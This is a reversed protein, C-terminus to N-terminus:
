DRIVRDFEISLWDALPEITRLFEERNEPPRQIWGLILSMSTRKEPYYRCFYEVSPELDTTWCGLRPMVLSFGTRVTKRCIRRMLSQAIETQNAEALEQLGAQTVSPYDGNFGRAVEISPRFRPLLPRIDQGALCVCLHKIFCGWGPLGEEALAERLSVAGLGVERVLSHCSTSLTNAVHRIEAQDRDSVSDRFIVLLDIDSHGLRARGTAVSGCLYLGHLRAELTSTLLAISDDVAPRFVPPIREVSGCTEIYGEADLGDQMM